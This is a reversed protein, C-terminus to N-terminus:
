FAEEFTIVPKVYDWLVCIHIILSIVTWGVLCTLALELGAFHEILLVVSALNCVLLTLFDKKNM